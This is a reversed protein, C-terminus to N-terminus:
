ENCKCNEGCGGTEPGCDCEKNEELIIEQSPLEDESVGISFNNKIDEVMRNIAEMDSEKVMIPNICEVREEGDTPLFFAMANANRTALAQNVSEAFQQVVGQTMMLERDLYFVLILPYNEKM